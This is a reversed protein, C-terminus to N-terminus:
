ITEAGRPQRDEGKGCLSSHVLLLEGFQYALVRCLGRFHRLRSLTAGVIRRELRGVVLFVDRGLALPEELLHLPALELEGVRRRLAGPPLTVPDPMEPTTASERASRRRMSPRRRAPATFAPAARGSSGRPNCTPWSSFSTSPPTM